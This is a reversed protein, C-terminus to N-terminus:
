SFATISVIAAKISHISQSKTDAQSGKRHGSIEAKRKGRYRTHYVFCRNSAMRHVLKFLLRLRRLLGRRASRLLFVIKIVPALQHIDQAAAIQDVQGDLHAPIVRLKGGAAFPRALPDGREAARDAKGDDARRQKCDDGHPEHAFPLFLRLALQLPCAGGENCLVFLLSMASDSLGLRRALAHYLAETEGVLYSFRRMERSSYRKKEEMM